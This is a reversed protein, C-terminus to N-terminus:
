INGKPEPMFVYTYSKEQLHAHNVLARYDEMFNLFENESLAVAIPKLQKIRFDHPTIRHRILIDFIFYELSPATKQSNNPTLM